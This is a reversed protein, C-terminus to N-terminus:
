RVASDGAQQWVAEAFYSSRVYPGAAVARFGLERGWQEYRAFVEPPVFRIVDHHQLSPRLYQGITVIDCGAARLDALVEHVEDDTEGLGVMIGSKTPTGPALRKTEALLQLSRRYRAQPRVTPYLRPVTELNHNLVDPAAALVTALAARDGNFDPILVEIRTQPCRERIARIAAAFHGAGGDPLDDRNVSTLVAFRLGLEAVAAAVRLPEDAAPPPPARDYAVDCFTCTRTCAEGLLMFTAARRSWCEARNPCSAEECVTTLQLRRVIAETRAAEGGAPLRRKLWPPLRQRVPSIPIVPM